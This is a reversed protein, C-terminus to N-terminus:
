NKCEQAMKIYKQAHEPNKAQMHMHALAMCAGKHGAAAAKELAPKAKAAMEKSIAPDDKMPSDQGDSTLYAVTYQAIPDGNAAEVTLTDINLWEADAASIKGDAAVMPKSCTGAPCQLAATTTPAQSHDAGCDAFANFGLMAIAATLYSTHNM